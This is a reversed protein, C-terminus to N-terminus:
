SLQRITELCRLCSIWRRSGVRKEESPRQKKKGCVCKKKMAARHRAKVCPFCPSLHTEEGCAECRM